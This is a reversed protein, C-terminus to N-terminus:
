PGINDITEDRLETYNMRIRYFEIFMRECTRVVNLEVVNISDSYFAVAPLRTGKFNSIRCFALLAFLPDLECRTIGLDSSM